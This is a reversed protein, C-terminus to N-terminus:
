RKLAFHGKFTRGDALNCGTAIQVFIEDLTGEGGSISIDTIIPMPAEGCYLQEGEVDIQPPSLAM